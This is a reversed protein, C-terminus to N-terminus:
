KKMIKLGEDFRSGSKDDSLQPHRRDVIRDSCWLPVVSHAVKTIHDIKTGQGCKTRHQNSNHISEKTGFERSHDNDGNFQARRM